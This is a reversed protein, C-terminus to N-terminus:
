RQNQVWSKIRKWAMIQGYKTGIPNGLDDKTIQYRSLEEAGSIYAFDRTWGEWTAEVGICSCPPRDIYSASLMAVTHQWFPSMVVFPCTRNRERYGAYYWLQVRDPMFCVSNWAKSWTLATADYVGPVVEVEGFRPKGILSLYAAATSSDYSWSLLAQQSNDNTIRIVDVTTLFNANDKALLSAVTFGTLLDPKVVQERRFVFTATNGVVTVTVPRVEKTTDGPFFVHLECGDVGTIANNVVTVTATETYGDGDVDSYVIAVGAQITTSKKIGGAIIHGWDTRVGTSFGRLRLLNNFGEPHYPRQLEQWEEVEWSPLLRFGLHKEIIDEAMFIALGIADRGVMDAAQWEYQNFVGSCVEAFDPVYVGNFHLPNIGFFKAWTDLPLKTLTESWAM